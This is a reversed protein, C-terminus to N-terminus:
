YNADCWITTSEKSGQRLLYANFSDSDGFEINAVKRRPTPQYSEMDEITYGDPVAIRNADIIIPKRSERAITVAINENEEQM